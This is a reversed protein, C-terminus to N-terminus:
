TYYIVANLLLLVATSGASAGEQSWAWLGNLCCSGTCSVCPIFLLCSMIVTLSLSQCHFSSWTLTPKVWSEPMHDAHRIIFLNLWDMMEPMLGKGQFAAASTDPGWATTEQRRNRDAKEKEGQFFLKSLFLSLSPSLPSSLSLDRWLFPPKLPLLNTVAHLCDFVDTCIDGTGNWRIRQRSSHLSCRESFIGAGSQSTVQWYSFNEESAGLLRLLLLTCLGLPPSFVPMVASLSTLPVFIHNQMQSAPALVM